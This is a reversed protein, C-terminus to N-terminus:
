KIKAFEESVKETITMDMKKDSVISGAVSAVAGVVTAVMGIITLVNKNM